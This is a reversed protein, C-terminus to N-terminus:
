EEDKGNLEKNIYAIEKDWLIKWEPLARGKETVYYGHYCGINGEEDMGGDYGKKIYGEEALKRSAERALKVPIHLIRAISKAATPLWCGHGCYVDAKLYETLVAERCDAYNHYDDYITSQTLIELLALGDPTVKYCQYKGSEEKEVYGKGVLDDWEAIDSGGADYYNRYAHYYKRGLYHKSKKNDAGIAHYMMRAQKKNVRFEKKVKMRDVLDLEEWEKLQLM